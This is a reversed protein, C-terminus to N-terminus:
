GGLREMVGGLFGCVASRVQCLLSRNTRRVSERNAPAIRGLSVEGTPTSGSRPSRRGISILGMVIAM